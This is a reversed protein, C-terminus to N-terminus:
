IIEAMKCLHVLATTNVAGTRKLMNKRHKEVTATSIFLQDAIEQSTFHQALLLIIEKERNTLLDDFIQKGKQKIFCNQKSLAQHRIWYTDGKILHSIDEIFFITLDLKGKADVSLIHARSFLRRLEGKGDYFKMGCAFRKCHMREELSLSKFFNYGHILTRFAYSFHSLDLVHFLFRGRWGMFRKRPINTVAELNNSFYVPQHRKHDFIGIIINDSLNINRYADITAKIKSLDHRGEPFRDKILPQFIEYYKDVINQKVM